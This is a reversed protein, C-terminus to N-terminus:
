APQNRLFDAVEGFRARLFARLDPDVPQADLARDMCRLWAERMPITVPVHAHRM